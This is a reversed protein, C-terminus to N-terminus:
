VFPRRRFRCRRRSSLTARRAAARLTDGRPHLMPRPPTRHAWRTGGEDQGGEQREAALVTGRGDDHRRRGRAGRRSGDGADHDPRAGPGGLDGEQGRLWRRSRRDGATPRVGAAAAAAHAHAEPQERRAAPRHEVRDAEEVRRVLEGAIAARRAREVQPRADGGLDVDDEVLGVGRRAAHGGRMALMFTTRLAGTWVSPRCSHAIRYSNCGQLGSRLAVRRRAARRPVPTLTPTLARHPHRARSLPGHERRRDRHHPLHEVRDGPRRRLAEPHAPHPRGALGSM